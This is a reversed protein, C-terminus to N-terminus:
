SSGERSQFWIIWQMMKKVIGRLKITGGAFDLILSKVSLYVTRRNLSDSSLCICFLAGFPGFQWSLVPYNSSHLFSRTPKWAVSVQM